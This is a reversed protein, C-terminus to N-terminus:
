HIAVPLYTSRAASQHITPRSRRVKMVAYNYDLVRTKTSYEREVNDCLQINLYYPKLIHGYSLIVIPGFPNTPAEELDCHLLKMNNDNM